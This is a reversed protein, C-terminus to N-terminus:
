LSLFIKQYIRPDFDTLHLINKVQELCISRSQQRDASTLIYHLSVEVVGVYIRPTFLSVDVM